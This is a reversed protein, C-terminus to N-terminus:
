NCQPPLRPDLLSMEDQEPPPQLWEYLTVKSSFFVLEPPSYIDWDRCKCVKLNKVDEHEFDCCFYVDCNDSKCYVFSLAMSFSLVFYNNLGLGSGLRIHIEFKHWKNKNRKWCIFSNTFNYITLVLIISKTLLDLTGNNKKLINETALFWTYCM